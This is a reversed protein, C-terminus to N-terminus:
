ENFFVEKLAEITCDAKHDAVELYFYAKEMAWKKYDSNSSIAFVSGCKECVSVRGMFGDRCCGGPGFM